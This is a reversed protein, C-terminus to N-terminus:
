IFAKFHQIEKLFISISQISYILEVISHAM